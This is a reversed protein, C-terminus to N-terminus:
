TQESVWGAATEKMRTWVPRKKWTQHDLSEAEQCDQEFRSELTAAVDACLAVACCEEDKGLSRRNWNASGICSVVGDVVLTKAHLMTKQYRLVRVGSSLVQEICPHSALQSIKSDHHKGATLVQVDVGREVAKALLQMLVNDPVFYPTTIKLSHRAISVLSRLLTATQTWGITTSARIIQVPIGSPLAKAGRRDGMWQWQGAENWNDSFAAQLSRVAPGNVQCHTERWEDPNAANGEWEEGIGVGGTFGVNSDCVLLKRHTRKDMRWFRWTSLPRFFRVEVGAARMQDVWASQMPRSGVADLLVRVRVGAKAQGALVRAFREAVDGQWYVFTAFDVHESASEIAGLMQPFIEDGNHLLRIQNGDVFPTGLSFELQTRYSQQDM